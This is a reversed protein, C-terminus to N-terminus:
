PFALLDEDLAAKRRQAFVAVGQARGHGAGALGDHQRRDGAVYQVLGVGLDADQGVPVFQGRLVPLFEAPHVGADGGRHEVGPLFGPRATNAM